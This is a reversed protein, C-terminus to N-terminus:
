APSRAGLLGAERAADIFVVRAAAQSRDGDAAETCLALARNFSRSDRAEKPWQTRLCDLAEHLTCVQVTQYPNLRIAVPAPWM